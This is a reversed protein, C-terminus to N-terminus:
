TSALKAMQSSSWPFARTSGDIAATATCSPRRCPCLLVGVLLLIGPYVSGCAPRLVAGPSCEHLPSDVASASVRGRMQWQLASKIENPSLDDDYVGEERWSSESGSQKKSETSTDATRRHNEAWLKDMNEPRDLSVFFIAREIDRLSARNLGSSFFQERCTAWHTRDM